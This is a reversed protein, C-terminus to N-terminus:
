VFINWYGVSPRRENSGRPRVTYM